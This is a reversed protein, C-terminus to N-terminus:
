TRSISLEGPSPSGPLYSYATPIALPATAAPNTALLVTGPMPATLSGTKASPICGATMTQICTCSDTCPESAVGSTHQGATQQTSPIGSPQQGTPADAPHGAHVASPPPVTVAAPSHISHGGAIGHMGLIGATIALVAALLGARRLFATFRKRHSATM